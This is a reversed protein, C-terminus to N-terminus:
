GSSVVDDGFKENGYPKSSAPLIAGISGDGLVASDFREESLEPTIQKHERRAVIAIESM